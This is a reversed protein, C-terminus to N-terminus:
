ILDKLQLIVQITILLGLKLIKGGPASGEVVCVNINARKAYIAASIGAPGSGVIVLDFLDNKWWSSIVYNEINKCEKFAQLNKILIKM